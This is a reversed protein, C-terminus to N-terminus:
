VWGTSLKTFLVGPNGLDEYTDGKKGLTASPAGTGEYHIVGDTTTNNELAQIKSWLVAMSPTGALKPPM